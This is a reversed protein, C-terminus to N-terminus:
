ITVQAVSYRTGLVNLFGDERLRIFCTKVVEKIRDTIQSYVQTLASIIDEYTFTKEQSLIINSVILTYNEFGKGDM